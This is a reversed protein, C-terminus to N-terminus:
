PSATSQRRAAGAGRREQRYGISILFLQTYEAIAQREPPYANRKIDRGMADAFLAGTFMAVATPIPAGADVSGRDRLKEVYRLVNQRMRDWGDNLCASIEPHEEVESMMKRIVSRRDRMTRWHDRAWAELEAAADGPTEPLLRHSPRGTREESQRVAEELLASKSGFLRFITVENVGAADAIRRTTAGRFGFEGFVAIAANILRQRSETAAQVMM